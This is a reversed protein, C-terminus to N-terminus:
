IPHLKQEIRLAQAPNPLWKYLFRSLIRQLTALSDPFHRDLRLASRIAEQKGQPREKRCQEAFLFATAVLVATVHHNWGAYSRGQYHDLGCNEKLDQYVRETRFREKWIRVLTKLAANAPATILAYKKNKTNPDRESLLWVPDEHGNDASDRYVSVRKAAFQGTLKGKTGERWRVNKHKERAALGELNTRPGRKSGRQDVSWGLTDGRVGVAFDYGCEIVADRFASSNGYATDALVRCHPVLGRNRINKLLGLALEPKTRFEVDDPIKGQKRKAETLWTKPLYLAFDIAIQRSATAAVLSVGIQCNTVKGASGTYQRQVGASGNGQKLFGTDDIILHEIRENESLSHLAYREAAARLKEDDWTAGGIVHHVNQHITDTDSPAGEATSAAAAITEGNKKELRSLLGAVYISFNKSQPRNSLERGIKELYSQLRAQTEEGDLRNM